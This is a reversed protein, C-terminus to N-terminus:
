TPALVIQDYWLLRDVLSRLEGSFGESRWGAMEALSRVAREGDIADVLRKETAGIPLILDGYTHSQNILVAAAGPPLREEITLTRPLRLPVADMWRDNSHGYDWIGASDDDRHIVVSHRVMSGRFLEVAAYQDAPSLAQLREAHPTEALIGCRPLYPAQRYWRGFALGNREVYALVEPVSYSQERPNLLADALADYRRFDPSGRLLPDLPHDRPIEVLTAAFDRIEHNSPGIGLRRAYEQMMTVGARGYPAYVMILMAGGPRLVSRLAALGADPDALHHLVGTCVILDFDRGLEAAREIPLKAIELNTLHHRRRLEETHGISTASVDIGTVGGEPWRIAHRAAQFTGCGAVLVDLNERFRQTPFLLHYETRRRERDSWESLDAALDPVPPPYPHQEYFEVIPDIEARPQLENEEANM